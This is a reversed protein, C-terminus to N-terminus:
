EGKFEAKRKEMFASTGEKSDETACIAGFEIMEFKLGSDLDSNAAFNICRKASAIAAPGKSLISKAIKKTEEILEGAPFVKEALGIRLAEQADVMEGSLILFKAMGKGVLRSLRQTGGYGPIIGLNVEPQGIKVSNAAIRIDCAIALECGGGLAFGNIAAISIMNSNEIKWYLGQGRRALEIGALSNLRNLEGIDAGAVFSKEGGGTIIVVRIDDDAELDNWASYLETIVEANLANLAKPRNITLVALSGEKELIVNKYEM